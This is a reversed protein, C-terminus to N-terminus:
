AGGGTYGVGGSEPWPGSRAPAARVLSAKRDCVASTDVVGDIRVSPGEAASLAVTILFPASCAGAVISRRWSRRTCRISVAAWWGANCSLPSRGTAGTDDRLM